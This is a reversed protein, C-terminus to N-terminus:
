RLVDRVEERSFTPKGRQRLSSIREAIGFAGSQQLRRLLEEQRQSRAKLEDYDRQLIMRGQVGVLHEVRNAELRELVPNRDFPAIADAVAGSWPAGEHWVVGFGFFAPVIALRLGPREAMFDEIATMTGNRPGGETLAAYPFPLGEETVGPNDPALGVNEGVEQRDADPIREPAYYTDRRAHPWLVDHFLLLPMEPGSAIADILELERSLTYYNHDGDIVVADPLSTLRALYDHSTEEILELEPRAAALERLRDPPVPDMGAVRAGSGQAWDLLDATLDGEFSGIELISRAGIADLCPLLIERVNSLSYGWRQPDKVRNAPAESMLHHHGSNEM